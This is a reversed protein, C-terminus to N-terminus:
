KWKLADYVSALVAGAVLFTVLGQITWLWVLADPIAFSMYTMIMGPAVGILWLLFGYVSGREWGRGPIAKYLLSFVLAFIIWEVVEISYLITLWESMPEMTKWVSSSQTYLLTTFGTTGMTIILSIIVAVIGTIIGAVVSKKVNIKIM